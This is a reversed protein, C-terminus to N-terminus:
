DEWLMERAEERSITRWRKNRPERQWYDGEDDALAKSVAYEMSGDSQDHIRRVVEDTGAIYAYAVEVIQGQNRPPVHFVASM